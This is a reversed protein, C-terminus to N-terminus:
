FLEKDYVLQDGNWKLVDVLSCEALYWRWVALGEKQNGNLIDIEHYPVEAINKFSNDNWQFIKLKSGLAAGITVGFLYEKTGDGTIDALGSFDLDVGKIKTEWIKEWKNNVKKLVMAGYQSPSPHEKAKVEFTVIIEKRGDQNFDYLQISKTPFPKDPSVILSNSPKFENVIKMLEKNLKKDAQVIIPSLNLVVSSLLIFLMIKKM